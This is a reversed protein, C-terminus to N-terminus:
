VTVEWVATDSAVKLNSGDCSVVSDGNHWTSTDATWRSRTSGQERIKFLSLLSINESSTLFEVYPEHQQELLDGLRFRNYPEVYEHHCLACTM